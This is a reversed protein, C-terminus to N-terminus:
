RFINYILYVGFKTPGIWSKTNKQEIPFRAYEGGLKYKNYQLHAYGIGVNVDIKFRPSLYFKYGTSVGGSLGWGSRRYSRDMDHHRMLGINFQGYLAYPGVYFGDWSDNTYYYSPSVHYRYEVSAMAARFVEEHKKFMYPMWLIEGDITVQRTLTVEVGINPSGTLWLPVNTKISQAGAGGAWGLLLTCAAIVHTYFSKM